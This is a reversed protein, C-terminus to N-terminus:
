TIWPSVNNWESGLDYWSSSEPDTEYSNWTMKALTLLTERDSTNPGPVEWQDWVVAIDEENEHPVLAGRRQQAQLRQRRLSQERAQFFQEQYRPKYTKVNRPTISFSTENPQLGLDRATEAIRFRHRDLINKFVVTSGM